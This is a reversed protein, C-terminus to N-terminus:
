ALKAKLSSIETAHLSYISSGLDNVRQGSILTDLSNSLNKVYNEKFYTTAKRMETTLEKRTVKDSGDVVCLKALAAIVLESGSDCGLKACIMSTSLSQDLDMKGSKPGEVSDSEVAGSSVGLEKLKAIFGALDQKIFDESGEFDVEVRGFKIRLKSTM